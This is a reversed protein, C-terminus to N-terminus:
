RLNSTIEKQDHENLQTWPLWELKFNQDTQLVAFFADYKRGRALARDLYVGNGVSYAKDEPHRPLQIDALKPMVPMAALRPEPGPEVLKSLDVAKPTTDCLICAKKGRRVADTYFSSASTGGNFPCERIDHYLKKSVWVNPDLQQRATDYAVVKNQWDSLLRSHDNRIQDCTSTWVAMQRALEANREALREANMKDVVDFLNEVTKRDARSYDKYPPVTGYSRIKAAAIAKLSNRTNSLSRNVAEFSAKSQNLVRDRVADHMKRQAEAGSQASATRVTCILIVITLCRSM